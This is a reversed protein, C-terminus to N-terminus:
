TLNSIGTLYMISLWDIESSKLKPLGPDLVCMLPYHGDFPTIKPLMALDGLSCAYM